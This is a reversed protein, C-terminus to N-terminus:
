QQQSSFGDILVCAGGLTIASDALNFAPFYSQQYHFSVFDIVYGLMVRDILNGVAGGLILGVGLALLLNSRPMRNLWVMLAISAIFAIATFLYRQWGGANSLFSFAAGSNHMLTFELVPLLEVPQGYVLQSSAASKTLQDLVVVAFALAYWRLAYLGNPM